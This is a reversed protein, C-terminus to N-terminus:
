RTKKAWLLVGDRDIASRLAPNTPEDETVLIPRLTPLDEWGEQVQEALRALRRHSGPPLASIAFVAVDLDSEEGGQLRARSGFVVIRQLSGEPFDARVREVFQGLLAREGPTFPLPARAAQARSRTSASTTSMSIQMAPALIGPHGLFGRRASDAESPRRTDAIVGAPPWQRPHRDPSPMRAELM